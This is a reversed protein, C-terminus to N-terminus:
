LINQLRKNIIISVIKLTVDLLNIGRWNNPNKTNGKNPIPILKAKHWEKFDLGEEFYQFIFKHLIRKNQDNLSKIANPSIGNLDPTSHWKMCKIASAFEVFTLQKGMSSVLPRTKIADFANLGVNLFQKFIKEFHPIFCAFNEKDNKAPVGKTNKLKLNIHESHHSVLGNKLIKIAKWANRPCHTM